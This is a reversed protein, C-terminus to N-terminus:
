FTHSESATLRVDFKERSIVKNLEAMRRNARNLRAYAEDILAEGEEIPASDLIVFRDFAIASVRLDDFVQHVQGHIHDFNAPVSLALFESYIRDIENRYTQANLPGPIQISSTRAHTGFALNKVVQPSLSLQYQFKRQAEAVRRFMATVEDGYAELAMSYEIQNITAYGKDLQRRAQSFKGADYDIRAFKLYERADRVVHPNLSGAGNEVLRNLRENQQELVAGVTEDTTELAVRLRAEATTLDAMIREYDAPDYNNDLEAIQRRVGIADESQFYTLGDNRGRRMNDLIASRAESYNTRKTSDVLKSARANASDALQASRTYNGQELQLRAERADVIAQSLQRAGTDWAGLSQADAIASEANFIKYYLAGEAQDLAQVALSGAEAYSGAEYYERARADLARARQLHDGSYSAAGAETARDLQVTVQGLVQEAIAKQGVAQAQRAVRLGREAGEIAVKLRNAQLDQEAQLIYQDAERLRAQAEPSDFGSGLIDTYISRAQRIDEVAKSAVAQGMLDIDARTNGALDVARPYDGAAIADRVAQLGDNARQYEAPSYIAAGDREYASILGALQIVANNAIVRYTRALIDDARQEQERAAIIARSYEGSEVAQRARQIEDATQRLDAGLEIRAAERADDTPEATRESQKGFGTSSNRPAFITEVENYVTTAANLRTEARRIAANALERFDGELRNIENSAQRYIERVQDFAEVTDPQVAIRANEHLEEIRALRGPLYTEVQGTQFDEIATRIEAIRKASAARKTDEVLTEARPVWQNASALVSEFRGTDFDDNMQRLVDSVRNYEDATLERAGEDLSIALSNEIDEIARRSKAEQTNRIGTRALDQAAKYSQEAREYNKEVEYIQDANRLESETRTVSPQDWITGGQARLQDLMDRAEIKASDARNRVQAVGADVEARVEDAIRIVDAEKNNSRADNLNQMLQQIRSWRESDSRLNNTEAVQVDDQARQFLARSQASRVRPELEDVLAVAEKALTLAQEANGAARQQNGQDILNQLRQMGASDHKAGDLRQLTEYSSQAKTLRTEAAKDKGCGTFAVVVLLMLTLLRAATFPHRM